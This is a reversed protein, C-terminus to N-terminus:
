DSWARDEPWAGPGILPVFRCGGLNKVTYRGDEDKTFLYLEQYEKEGIPLVIRGGVKLQDLLDAILEPASATVIIAAYPGEQPYGIKQAEASHVSVNTYGLRSLTETARQKLEPIREVTIVEGALLSLVAAQYGSGTGVELVKEAGTLELAQTMMAVILPQSITQEHGIPLPQNEYAFRYFEIPVFEERPTKAIANLVREDIEDERLRSLLREKAAELRETHTRNRM